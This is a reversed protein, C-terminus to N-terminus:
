CGDVEQRKSLFRCLSALMDVGGLIFDLIVYSVNSVGGTGPGFKTERTLTATVATRM